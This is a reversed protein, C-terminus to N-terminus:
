PASLGSHVKSLDLHSRLPRLYKQVHNFLSSVIPHVILSPMLGSPLFEASEVSLWVFPTGAAQTRSTIGAGAQHLLRLRSRLVLTSARSSRPPQQQLSTGNKMRCPLTPGM